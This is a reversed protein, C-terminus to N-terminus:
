RLGAGIHEQMKLVRAHSRAFENEAAKLAAPRTRGAISDDGAAM